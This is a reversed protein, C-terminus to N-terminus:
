SATTRKDHVQGHKRKELHERLKVLQQEQRANIVVEKNPPTPAMQHYIAKLSAYYGGKNSNKGLLHENAKTLPEPKKPFVRKRSKAM